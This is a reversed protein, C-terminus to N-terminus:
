RLGGERSLALETIGAFLVYATLMELAVSGLMLHLIAEPHFRAAIRDARSLLFDVPLHVILVTLLLLATALFHRKAHSAGACVASWARGGRLRLVVPAYILFTQMVVTLAVSVFLLARAVLDPTRPGTLRSSAEGAIVSAGVFLVGIVLIQRLAPRFARRPRDMGVAHGDVLKWVALTWLAFGVTAVLPLYLRQYVSPLGVLHMPYHLSQEGGLAHMAPVMVPALFPATFFGMALLILAQLGAFLAFPLLVGPSSLAGRAHSVADFYRNVAREINM